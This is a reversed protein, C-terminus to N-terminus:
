KRAEALAARGAETISYRPWMSGGTVELLGRRVLAKATGENKAWSNPEKAFFELAHVMAASIRDNSMELGGYRDAM